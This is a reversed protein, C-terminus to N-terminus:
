EEDVQKQKSQQPEALPVQKMMARKTGFHCSTSQKGAAELRTSGREITSFGGERRVAQCDKEAGSVRGKFLSDTRRMELLSSGEPREHTRTRVRTRGRGRRPTAKAGKRARDHGDWSLLPPPADWPGGGGAGGREGRSQGVQRREEVKETTTSGAGRGTRGQRLTLLRRPAGFRM